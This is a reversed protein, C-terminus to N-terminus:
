DLRSILNEDRCLAVHVRINGVKVPPRYTYPYYPPPYPQQLRPPPAQPAKFRGWAPILWLWIGSFLVSIFWM